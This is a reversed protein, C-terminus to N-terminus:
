AGLGLGLAGLGKGWCTWRRLAKALSAGQASQWAGAKM